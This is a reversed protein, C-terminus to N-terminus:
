LGIFAPTFHKCRRLCALARAPACHTQRSAGRALLVNSTARVSPRRHVLCAPAVVALSLCVHPWQWPSLLLIPTLPAASRRLASSTAAPATRETQPLRHDIVQATSQTPVRLASSVCPLQASPGPPASSRAAPASSPAHSASSSTSYGTAANVRPRRSVSQHPAPGFVATTRAPSSTGRLTKDLAGSRSQTSRTSQTPGENIAM